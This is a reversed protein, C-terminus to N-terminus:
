KPVSIKEGEASPQWQRWAYTPPHGDLPKDNVAWETAFRGYWHGQKMKTIFGKDELEKFARSITGKSLYLLRAAEGFSLRLRGNNGGNFRSRLEILIKIAPGSLTRWADSHVMRYPLAMYQESKNRGTANAKARRPKRFQAM